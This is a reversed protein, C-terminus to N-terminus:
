PFPLDVTFTTSASYNVNQYTTTATVTYTGITLAQDILFYYEYSGDSGTSPTDQYLYNPGTVTLTTPQNPIGVQGNTFIVQYVAFSYSGQLFASGNDATITLNIGAGRDGLIQYNASTSGSLSSNSSNAAAVSFSYTGAGTSTDSTITATIQASENPQLNVSNQSFAASFGSPVTASMNFTSSGCEASDYNYLYITYTLGSGPLGIQYWPELAVVPDSEVCTNAPPTNSTFYSMLGDAFSGLGTADDFGTGAAYYGNTSNDAIDHFYSTYNPDAGAQYLFPSALGLVNGGNNKLNQNALASIATWLASAAGTGGLVTWGGNVYIAYGANPDANLSVDPVNRFTFSSGNGNVVNEQWTPIYWITSIGGGSGSGSSSNYWTTESNYSGNANTTLSTGGVSVVLPQSAPDEVSLVGPADYAGNNGSAVFISQGQAAMQKFVLAEASILSGATTLENSGWSSSVSSALNDTAIKNYTDLVGTASNPGEYVLIKSLGPALAMVLEIDTTVQAANAGPQGTASDVLVTTLPINPLSFQSQYAAIDSATFGDLEFLAVTQGTGNLSSTLGYANAIASPALGQITNSNRQNKPRERIKPQARYVNELGHVSHIKLEHAVQLEYAPAYFQRGQQDSFYAIETNFVRNVAAVSAHAHVILRNKDVFSTHIDHAKLYAIAKEVQEVTPSYRAMYEEQKLYKRFLPSKPNSIELVRQDLEEENNLPLVISLNLSRNTEVPALKKAQGAKFPVHGHLLKLSGDLESSVPKYSGHNEIRPTLFNAGIVAEALMLLTMVVVFLQGVHRRM